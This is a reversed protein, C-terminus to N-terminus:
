SYATSFPKSPRELQQHGPPPPYSQPLHHQQFTQPPHPLPLQQCHSSKTLPIPSPHPPPSISPRTITTTCNSNGVKSEFAEKKRTCNNKLNRAQRVFPIECSGQEKAYGVFGDDIGRFARSQVCRGKELFLSWRV